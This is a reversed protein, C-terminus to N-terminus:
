EPERGEGLGKIKRAALDTSNPDALPVILDSFRLDYDLFFSTEQEKTFFPHRKLKKVVIHTHVSVEYRRKNYVCYLRHAPAKCPPLQVKKDDGTGPPVLVVNIGEKRLLAAVAKITVIDTVVNGTRLNRILQRYGM